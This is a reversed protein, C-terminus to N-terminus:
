KNGDSGEKTIVKDTAQTIKKALDPYNNHIRELAKHEKQQLEMLAESNQVSAIRKLYSVVWEEAKAKQEADPDISDDIAFLGCLAYKRAYSSTSGTVQADDMGKKAEPERAFAYTSITDTGCTLSATAKVYIRGSVEVIEDSLRLAVDDPLVKKAAEVIDECSRYNYRGFSNYRSKNVVLQKQVGGLIDFLNKKAKSM